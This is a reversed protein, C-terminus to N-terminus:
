YKGYKYGYGESRSHEYKNIVISAHASGNGKLLSGMGEQIAELSHKNYEIVMVLQSAVRCALAADTVLMIPPTDVIILDYTQKLSEILDTYHRSGLLEAPNAPVSGCQMMDLNEVETKSIVDEAKVQGLLIQSLGNKRKIGFEKHLRGKRLDADILIVKKGLGAFLAALNVSIFSKGVGPILGSVGIIRSSSDEMAFDLSSRLARLSEVAVDDPEVVALPRTGKTGNPNGKPVKAYVSYGTEKEIFSSSKVGSSLRDKLAVLAVGLFFGLFMALCVIFSKKPKIPKTTEEAFDIIHVSGVEGASVLRLQEINNLMSTYMSKSLDVENTLRLVEQQTAPLKKVASSTGALERRLASEQNELTKVTPHESHFLRVTSEKRQEIDLLEQQLKMRRELVMRTETNIDVSGVQNRYKNLEILASDMRAKVSPIQKELFDLTKAAEENRQEMNQRLYSTAVENLIETGRDPYIDTYSFEIIGTKKGKEKVEFAKRFAAIADLRRAKTIEFWQDEVVDMKYICFTVTDGAYPYNYTVGPEGNGVWVKNQDYLEFHSEDTTKVFWPELREEEPVKDWPVEFSIVDLRGERHLLRDWFNIPNARYQLHMREMTAGLIKRSQILEMETESPSSNSFISGLSGFMASAANKGGKSEIQLLADVKYVPRIWLAVFVGVFGSLILCPVIVRWSKVSTALFDWLTVEETKKSTAM